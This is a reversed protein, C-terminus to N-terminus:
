HSGLVQSGAELLQRSKQESSRKLPGSVYTTGICAGVSVAISKIMMRLFASQPHDGVESIRSLSRRGCVSFIDLVTPNDIHQDRIM